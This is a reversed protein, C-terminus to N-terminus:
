RDGPPLSAEAFNQGALYPARAKASPTTGCAAHVREMARDVDDLTGRVLGRLKAAIARGPAGLADADRACEAITQIQHKHM